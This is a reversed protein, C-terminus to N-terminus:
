NLVCLIDVLLPYIALDACIFSFYWAVITLLLFQLMYSAVGQCLENSFWYFLVVDYFCSSSLFFVLLLCTLIARMDCFSYFTCM